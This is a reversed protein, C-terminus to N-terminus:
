LDFEEIFSIITKYKELFMFGKQTLSISKEGNQSKTEKILEKEKLELYYEKFRTSSINTRRLLPTINISNQNKQIIGLINQIIELRGRKAM